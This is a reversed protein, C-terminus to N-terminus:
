LPAALTLGLSPNKRKKLIIVAFFGHPPINRVYKLFQHGFLFLNGVKIKRGKEVMKGGEGEHDSTM